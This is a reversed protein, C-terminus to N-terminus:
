HLSDSDSRDSRDQQGGGGINEGSASSSFTTASKVNILDKVAFEKRKSLQNHRNIDAMIMREEYSMSSKKPKALREGIDTGSIQPQLGSNSVPIFFAVGGDRKCPKLGEEYIQQKIADIKESPLCEPVFSELSEEKTRSRSLRPSVEKLTISNKLTDTLKDDIDEPYPQVGHNSDLAGEKGLTSDPVAPNDNTRAHIFIDVKTQSNDGLNMWQKEEGQYTQKSPTLDYDIKSNSDKSKALTEEYKTDEKNLINKDDIINSCRTLKLSDELLNCYPRKELPMDHLEKKLCMTKNTDALNKDSTSSCNELSPQPKNDLELFEKSSEDIQQTLFLAKEYLNASLCNIECDENAIKPKTEFLNLKRDEPSNSNAYTDIVKIRHVPHYTDCTPVDEATIEQKESKTTEIKNLNYLADPLREEKVSKIDNTEASVSTGCSPLDEFTFDTATKKPSVQQGTSPISSMKKKEKVAADSSQHLDEGVGPTDCSWVNFPIEREAPKLLCANYETKTHRSKEQHTSHTFLDDEEALVNHLHQSNDKSLKKETSDCPDKHLPGLADNNYISAYVPTSDGTTQPCDFNLRNESSNIYDKGSSFANGIDGTSYKALTLTYDLAPSKELSGASEKSLGEKSQSFSNDRNLSIKITPETEHSRDVFIVNTYREDGEVDAFPKEADNKIMHKTKKDEIINGNLVLKEAKNLPETKKDSCIKTDANRTSYKAMLAAFDTVPSSSRKYQAFPENTLQPQSEESIAIDGEKNDSFHQDLLVNAYKTMSMSSKEKKTTIETQDVDHEDIDSKGAYLAEPKELDFKSDKGECSYKEYSNSYYTLTSIKKRMKNVSESCTADIDTKEESFGDARKDQLEKITASYKEMLSKYDSLSPSATLTGNTDLIVGDGSLESKKERTEVLEAFPNETSCISKDADADLNTEHSYIQKDKCRTSFDSKHMDTVNLINESCEMRMDCITECSQNLKQKVEMCESRTEAITNAADNGSPTAPIAEASPHNNPVNPKSDVNLSKFDPFITGAAGNIEYQSNSPTPRSKKIETNKPELSNQPSSSLCIKDKVAETIGHEDSHHSESKQGQLCSELCISDGHTKYEHSEREKGAAFDKELKIKDTVKYLPPLASSRSLGSSTLDRTAPPHVVPENIQGISNLTVVPPLRVPQNLPISPEAVSTATRIPPLKVQNEFSLYTCENERDSSYVTSFLSQPQIRQCSPTKLPDSVINQDSPKKTSSIALASVHSLTQTSRVKSIRREVSQTSLPRTSPKTYDTSPPRPFPMAHYGPSHNSLSRSLDHRSSRALSDQSPHKTPDVNSTQSSQASAPRPKQPKGKVFLNNHTRTREVEQPSENKLCTIQCNLSTKSVSSRTRPDRFSRCSSKNSAESADMDQSQCSNVKDVSTKSQNRRSLSSNSTSCSADLASSSTSVIATVMTLIDDKEHMSFDCTAASYPRTNDKKAKFHYGSIIHSCSAPRHEDRLKEDKDHNDESYGESDPRWNNFRRLRNQTSVYRQSKAVGRDPNLDLSDRNKEVESELNESNSMNDVKLETNKESNDRIERLADKLEMCKSEGWSSNSMESADMAPNISKSKTIDGNDLDVLSMDRFRKTADVVCGKLGKTDAFTAEFDMAGCFYVRQETDRNKQKTNALCDGFHAKVNESKVSLDLEKNAASLESKKIEATSKSEEETYYHKTLQVLTRNLNTESANHVDADVGLSDSIQLITEDECEQTPQQDSNKSCNTKKSELSVVKQANDTVLDGQEHLNYTESKSKSSLIVSPNAEGNGHGEHPNVVNESSLSTLSVDPAVNKTLKCRREGQHLPAPNESKKISVGELSEQDIIEENNLHVYSEVPSSVSTTVKLPTPETVIVKEFDNYEPSPTRADRSVDQDAHELEVANGKSKLKELGTSKERFGATDKEGEPIEEHRRGVCSGSFFRRRSHLKKNTTFLGSMSSDGSGETSVYENTKKNIPTTVNVNQLDATDKSNSRFDKLVPSIYESARCEPEVETTNLLNVKHTDNIFIRTSVQVPQTPYIINGNESVVSVPKRYNSIPGALTDVKYGEDNDSNSSGNNIRRRASANSASEANIVGSRVSGRRSQKVLSSGM